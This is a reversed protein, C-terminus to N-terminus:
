RQGGSATIREGTLWASRDSALFVAVRAIDDPQGFRGMPLVAGMAKAAEMNLGLAAVGETETMGPAIANVRINKGVLETALARTVTDIAGKSASYVVSNPVPNVSAITSLNIVSGGSGDFVRAAEQSALIAGLVNINFQRHFDEDTVADLPAFSFVGANNVLISPRGLKAGTEAFLRKVDARKSVDAQIATARGGAGVIDGVVRDADPRSSAYNVAVAAGEKALAKAIAAGIGKSAGTVIAVKGSLEGM